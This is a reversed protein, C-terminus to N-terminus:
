VRLINTRVGVQESRVRVMFLAMLTVLMLGISIIVAQVVDAITGHRLVILVAQLASCALLLFVFIRDNVALFYTMLAQTPAFLADRIWVV